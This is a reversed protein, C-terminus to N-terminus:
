DAVVIAGNIVDFSIVSVSGSTLVIYDDCIAVSWIGLKLLCALFNLM